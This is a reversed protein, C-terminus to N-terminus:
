PQQKILNLIDAPIQADGTNAATAVHATAVAQDVAAVTAQAAEVQEAIAPKQAQEAAARTKHRQSQADLIM